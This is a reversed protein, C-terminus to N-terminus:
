ATQVPASPKAEFLQAAEGCLPLDARRLYIAAENDNRMDSCWFLPEGTSSSIPYAPHNCRSAHRDIHKCDTCLPASRTPHITYTPTSAQHHM